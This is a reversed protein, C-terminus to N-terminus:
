QHQLVLLWIVNGTVTAGSQGFMASTTSLTNLSTSTDSLEATAIASSTDDYVNPSVSDSETLAVINYFHNGYSSTPVSGGDATEELVESIDKDEVVAKLVARISVSELASDTTEPPVSDILDQTVKVVQEAIIQVIRGNAMQLDVTGGNETVVTESLGVADGKHLARKVGNKDVVFVPGKLAVVIAQENM